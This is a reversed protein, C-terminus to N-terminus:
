AESPKPLIGLLGGATTFLNIPSSGDTILTSQIGLGQLLKTQMEPGALAIDRITNAGLSKIVAEFKKVEVTALAEERAVDLDAQAKAFRLEQERAQALRQLESETEIATAEAKLKAQLVAGEGEIRAAEARSQAEAKAAGTSEVATSLAELELLEKRAREAEAQDIIKQRELRGRAEQELREAEHRAAAEQSNTTIEIALQVSRQLSDRTRQDVPEVSQIDISSIVLGNTAFRLSSRLKGEGDFGFVAACILRNSNKHFDDFTVAAVAGRIRSALMKCADGVFDPVNFLRSEEAASPIEFHWNYALQLQLRAHDATEITVVDTFFDPGLLLCLARRTHPRKPRGGSLSLVTFQEDPGLLVLEPGFVVRSKRDKYDYVQVAANHPVRYSVARTKDRSVGSGGESAERSRDVVPDRGIALLAEVHPPLEKEWLEEDQSLMYTHGIVARVKGTKIDRVYIGENEALPISHRRELVEVEVPPVYELPGHILWRDGPKRAVEEGDENEDEFPRLARLLLGDEESLIYIDQIGEELCEGPQLFFSMEGKIVKKQGLQPKGDDDVPDCVTCYQCSNLTTIDVVGLVEEYVDPIHAETDAMTVLWEEGTKRTVGQPDRFTKTARLHLAKKETLIFADVTDVVEEFVGPLYAGVRKVLWEEGTVRKNGERDKCEKRAQLRIAQNPRIITAQIIEVVEVEKHPIYTGPGEFLWEDGAVYKGGQNDEFDLLARLHLATNALVVQLPTVDKQLEEGPYLPFPDQALRIDLDAHRLRVQGVADFEVEGNAARVVPNLIICYHRPPVMVMKVPAFVIRENDQRIYTKPGVEVRTVNSNQDLVHVYHYPPIRIISEAAM